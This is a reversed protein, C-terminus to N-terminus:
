TFPPGPDTAILQQGDFFQDIVVEITITGEPMDPPVYLSLTALKGEGFTTGQATLNELKVDVVGTGPLTSADLTIAGASLDTANPDSEDDLGGTTYDGYWQYSEYVLGGRSFEVFFIATDHVDADATTLVVDLDFPTGPVVTRSNADDSHLLAIYDGRASACIALVPLVALAARYM